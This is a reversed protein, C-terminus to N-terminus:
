CQKVEKEKSEVHYCFYRKGAVMMLIVNLTLHMFWEKMDVLVVDAENKKEVWLKYLEKMCTEVESFRVNKLLELQLSLLLGLTAIKCVERWYAGYPALSFM